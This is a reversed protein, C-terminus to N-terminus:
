INQRSSRKSICYTSPKLLPFAKAGFPRLDNCMIIRMSIALSLSLLLFFSIFSVFFISFFLFIFIFIKKQFYIENLNLSSMETLSPILFLNHLHNMIFGLYVNTKNAESIIDTQGDTHSYIIRLYCAKDTPGFSPM